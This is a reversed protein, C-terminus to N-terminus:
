RVTIRFRGEARERSGAFTPEQNIPIGLPDLALLAAVFAPQVPKWDDIRWASFRFQGARCEAALWYLDDSLVDEGAPVRPSTQAQDLGAAIPAWGAQDVAVTAVRARWPQWLDRTTLGLPNAHGRVSVELSWGAETPVLDYRRIQEDYRGNYVLRARTKGDSCAAEVDRAALATFWGLNRALPSAEFGPQACGALTLTAVVVAIRIM